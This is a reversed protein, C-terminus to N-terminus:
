SWNSTNKRMQVHRQIFIDTSNNFTFTYSWWMVGTSESSIEMFYLWWTGIWVLWVFVIIIGRFSVFFDILWLYLEYVDRVLMNARLQERTENLAITRLMTIHKISKLNSYNFAWLLLHPLPDGKQWFLISISTENSLLLWMWGRAGHLRFKQYTKHIHFSPFSTLSQLSACMSTEIHPESRAARRFWVFSINQLICNVRKDNLICFRQM